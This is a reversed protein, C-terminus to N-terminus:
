KDLIKTILSNYRGAFLAKTFNENLLEKSRRGMDRRLAIDDALAAIHRGMAAYDGVADIYGNVGDKVLAENDGVPTAVVPMDANMGEMISNSIGEFLSTSLYIDADRLEDAIRDSNILIRTIGGIKEEDVWGRVQNELEGYGIITFRLQPCKRSAEAVAKVATRYDKQAVFRGVTIVNVTDRVPKERYDDIPDFCNPIVEIRSGKFGTAAFHRKGSECNCVCAAAGWRSLLADAIHKSLPLKSNRLGTIVKTSTGRAAMVSYFNAATLYSFILDPSTTKVYRRYQAIRERRGGGFKVINVEPSLMEIYKQHVKGGNLIIFAVQHCPALSNALLVAQKEAGGSTLNKVCIGIKPM